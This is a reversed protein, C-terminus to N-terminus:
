VNQLGESVTEIPYIEQGILANIGSDRLQKSAYFAYIAPGSGSMLCVAPKTQNILKLYDAIKPQIKLAYKYLDNSISYALKDLVIKKQKYITLKSLDKPKSFNQPVLKYVEATSVPFPPKLILGYFKGIYPLKHLKEGRGQALITGGTLCFAIDSGLQNALSELEANKLKLDLLLNLGQLVAACDASGGALGAALPINKQITIELGINKQYKNLFLAAAKYALNDKPDATIEKDCIINIGRSKKIKLKILDYLSVSQMVSFLEHYGDPRKGLLDLILNIKAYAKIKLM